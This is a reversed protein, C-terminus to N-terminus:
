FESLIRKSSGDVVFSIGVVELEMQRIMFM